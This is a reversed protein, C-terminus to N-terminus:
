RIANSIADVLRRADIIMMLERDLKAVGVVFGAAPSESSKRGSAPSSDLSEIQERPVRLIDGGRDVLLGVDEAVAPKLIILRSDATCDAAALGLLPRLDLILHVRSRLNALGRVAPPAPPVPTIVTNTSIERLCAVDIGFLRQDARFTCFAGREASTEGLEPM